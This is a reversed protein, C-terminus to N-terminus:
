KLIQWFWHEYLSDKYSNCNTDKQMSKIYRHQLIHVPLVNTDDNGMMPYEQLLYVIVNFNVIRKLVYKTNPRQITLHDSIDQTDMLEIANLLDERNRITM